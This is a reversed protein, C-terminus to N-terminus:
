AHGFVLRNFTSKLIWLLILGAVVGIIGFVVRMILDRNETWFIADLKPQVELDNPNYMLIRRYFEEAREFEFNKFSRDGFFHLANVLLTRADGNTPDLNLVQEIKPMAEDWRDKEILFKAERLIFESNSPRFISIRNNGQDSVCLIEESNIAMGRPSLLRGPSTGRGSHIKVFIGGATIEVIRNNKSDSILLNGSPAAIVFSPERLEGKGSGMVGYRWVPNGNTDWCVVQNFTPYTVVLEGQPLWLVGRPPLPRLEKKPTEEKYYIEKQFNGEADLIQVRKNGFDAVALTGDDRLDIDMPTNFEGQLRGPKGIQKLLKGTKFDFVLIRNAGSSAVYLKGSKEIALGVPKDLLGPSKEKGKEKTLEKTPSAAEEKIAIFRDFAGNSKLVQIRNNKTDAVVIEGAPGLVLDEPGIFELEGKGEYGQTVYSSFELSLAPQFYSVFVAFFLSIFIKKM